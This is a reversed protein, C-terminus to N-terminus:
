SGLAAFLHALEEDVEDPSSVTHAIEERILDASRARLRYVASKVAGETTKLAAALKAHSVARDGAIAPKLTEFLTEKGASRCEERLRDMAREILALAWRRDFIKEPTEPDTPEHSFRSEGLAQDLPVIRQRGGRKRAQQRDWENALFHEFAARLFSRFRGRTRDAAAFGDKELLRALFGQVRDSADDASLGRHRAEAYLPYWYAECLM